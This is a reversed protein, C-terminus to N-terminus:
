GKVGAALDAEVPALFKSTRSELAASLQFLTSLSPSSVGRELLSIYSRDCGSIEALRQQSLGRERRLRRLRQGWAQEVPPSMETRQRGMQAASCSRSPVAVYRRFM